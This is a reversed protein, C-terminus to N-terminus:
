QPYLESLPRDKKLGFKGPNEAVIGAAFFRVVEERQKPTLVKWFDVRNPTVDVRAKFEAAEQPSMGLAALTYIIDGEFRDLFIAKLYIASSTAACNQAPDTLTETGCLQNFGNITVFDNSMQWLGENIGQKQPNFKSRSMALLYGIPAGVDREKVYAVNIVDRYQAARNFYGEVAYEGLKKNVEILFQQDLKYGPANPFNKQLLLKALEQTEIAGVNKNQVPRPTTTGVPKEPEEVIPLPEALTEFGVEIQDGSAIPKEQKDLLVVRLSHNQGDVLDGFQAPDLTTEYPSAPASAFEKGDLTFVVTEVCQQPNQVDVKVAVSKTLIDGSDPSKIRATAACKAGSSWYFLGAAVAFIVALGVVGGAVLTLKSSSKDEKAPEAETKEEEATDTEEDAEDSPQNFQISSSGGFTMLDGDQLLIEGDVETGNVATGNSSNQEVLWYGDERQELRAHYRSVNSDNLPVTNDSTRGITVLPVGVELEETGNIILTVKPM